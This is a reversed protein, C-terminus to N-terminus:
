LWVNKDNNRGSDLMKRTDIRELEQKIRSMRNNGSEMKRSGGLAERLPNTEDAKFL